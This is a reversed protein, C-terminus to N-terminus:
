RAPRGEVRFEFRKFETTAGLLTGDFRATAGDALADASAYTFAHGALKDDADFALVNVKVFKAPQGSKNHVKGAFKWGMFSDRRPRDAELELGSVLPPLYSPRQAAVEFDIRAHDMPADSALIVAPVRADAPIVDDETYGSSQGIEKGAQDHFVATIKTKGLTFPSTNHLYGYIWLAKGAPRATEFQFEATAPAVEEPAVEVVVPTSVVAPPSATADGSAARPTAVSTRRVASSVPEARRGGSRDPADARRLLVVLGAAVVVVAVAVAVMLASKGAAPAAPTPNLTQAAGQTLRYRVNCYVCTHVGGPGEPSTDAAGCGPCRILTAPM